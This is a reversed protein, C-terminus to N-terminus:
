MYYLGQGNIKEAQFHKQLISLLSKSVLDINQEAHNQTAYLQWLIRSASLEDGDWTSIFTLPKTVFVQPRCFIHGIQGGAWWLVLDAETEAGNLWWFGRGSRGFGSAVESLVLPIGTRDRWAGLAQWAEDSLVQGTLMQIAEIYVGIIYEPGGQEAVFADLARITDNPNYNPHPFSPWDFHKNQESLSRGAATNGGFRAGEFSIAVQGNPRKHKLARISKDVMEDLCSTFYLHSCGPPTITRLAESYRAYPTTIFNSLTLKTLAAEDFVGLSKAHELLPHSEGTPQHIGWLLRKETQAKAQQLEMQLPAHRRDFRRLPIRYYRSRLEEEGYQGLVEEVLYAGWRQNVSWMAHANVIHNRGTIYYYRPTGDERRALLAQHIIARRLRHGLGQGRVAVDVTIDASYLTDAKGLHYDQNPGETQSWEELPSAFAMGVLGDLNEAICVVGEPHAAIARLTSIDDQRAPEYSNEELTIVQPTLLDFDNLNIKRIRTGIRDAVFHTLSYDTARAFDSPEANSLVHLDSESRQPSLGLFSEGAARKADSLEGNHRLYLDADGPVTLAETLSVQYVMPSQHENNIWQPAQCRTMREILDDGLGGAQKTLAELSREIVRFVEHIEAETYGRNMRYRITKQGAIYVMYGQYFRQAILHLAIEKNPLDFGFADGFARPRLVIRSWRKTLDALRERLLTEHTPISQLLRLHAIGRAASAPHSPGPDPDPWRSLVLGVQARKACVVLDPGDPNGNADKLDFTSHWFIPGSLGFGSQVEDFVLPIGHSKTLARLGNFFRKTPTVDGGECQYPEIICVMVDGALIENELACLADIERELLPIRDEEALLLTPEFSAIADKRLQVRDGHPDSWAKIWQDSFDPDAYPSHPIPRELFVAEHGKIQYPERKIPNYTCYLSLLTRGHFSSEFALIRHGGTGNLQAIHFAKENSEAGGNTWCVHKINPPALKLLEQAFDNFVEAGLEEPHPSHLMLDDYVGDDLDVQAADPRFGAPLSAIQSAADIIQLPQDDVSRLFPGQCRALDVVAPKKERPLFEGGYFRELWMKSRPMNGDLPSLIQRKPRTLFPEPDIELLSNLFGLLALEMTYTDNEDGAVLSFCLGQESSVIGFRHAIGSLSSPSLVSGGERIVLQEFPLLLELGDVELWLGFREGVEELRHQRSLRFLPQDNLQRELLKNPTVQAFPISMVAVPYTSLRPGESGAPHWNGSKGVGGFPLLGSAGNTSRNWNLVGVAVEDYFTEFMDERQTFLSASLGYSNKAAAAIAEEDNQVTQFSIHPGFLEHELYDEDGKVGYISPTVFAGGPISESDVWPEAGQSKAEDLLTMFRHKAAQNALPGIFCNQDFPDLPRIRKFAEVLRRKLAPAIGATAIVRSTATCRQGSTLLAGLLIERTVQELDADDLVVAPNKGGLELCVKKHAQDFTVRRIKRGTEYSGTFIVGNVKPHASLAAGNAGQGQILNFVGAPFGAAHFLEAYRQGCLPTVESPKIVVTNGTLLSPVIHTNLLHIPFNFPGIVAIVGLPHFRQEGPAEDTAQPLTKTIQAIVGEIKSKISGAEMMAENFSKGMELSIAEAIGAQHEPVLAAVAKLAEIRAELGSRRWSKLAERAAHIAKDVSADYEHATFVKTGQKAPNYSSFSQGEGKVFQGNIYDGLSEIMTGM